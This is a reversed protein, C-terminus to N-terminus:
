DVHESLFRLSDDILEARWDDHPGPFFRLSKSQASVAAFLRRVDEARFLEDDHKNLMLVHASGLRGAAGLLMPELDGDDVWDGTPIGGAVFVAVSISPMSAVTAMGFIAGMSFGVCAIAPGLSALEDVVRQWDAVMQPIARSHWGPPM